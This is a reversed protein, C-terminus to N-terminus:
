NNIFLIMYIYIYLLIFKVIKHARYEVLVLVIHNRLLILHNKFSSTLKFKSWLIYKNYM